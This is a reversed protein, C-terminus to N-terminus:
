AANSGFKISRKHEPVIAGSANAMASAALLVNVTNAGGLLSANWKVSVVTTTTTKAGWLPADECDIFNV